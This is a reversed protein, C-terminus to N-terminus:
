WACLSPSPTCTHHGRGCRVCVHSHARLCAHLCPVGVERPRLAGHLLQHVAGCVRRLHRPRVARLGHRGCGLVVGRSVPVRGRQRVGRPVHLGGRLGGHLRRHDPWRHGRVQGRPLQHVHGRGGPLVARLPLHVGHRVHLGRPLRVGCHLSGCLQVHDPRGLRRLVGRCVPGHVHVPHPWLHVRVPGSCVAHVRGCRGHLVARRPLHVRHRQHVGRPLRLWLRLGRHLLLVHLGWHRVQVWDDDVLCPPPRPHHPPSPLPAPPPAPPSM